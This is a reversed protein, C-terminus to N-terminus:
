WYLVFRGLLIFNAMTNCWLAYQMPFSQSNWCNQSPLCFITVNTITVNIVETFYQSNFCIWQLLMQNLYFILVFGEPKTCIEFIIIKQFFHLLFYWTSCSHPKTLTWVHLPSHALCQRKKNLLSIAICYVRQHLVMAFKIKNPRKTSYQYICAM